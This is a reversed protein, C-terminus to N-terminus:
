SVRRSGVKWHEIRLPLRAQVNPRPNPTLSIGVSRMVNEEQILPVAPLIDLLYLLQRLTAHVIINYYDDLTHRM